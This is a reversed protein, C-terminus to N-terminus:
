CEPCPWRNAVSDMVRMLMAAKPNAAYPYEQPADYTRTRYESARRMEIVVNGGDAVVM